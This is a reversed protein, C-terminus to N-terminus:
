FQGFRAQVGGVRDQAAGLRVTQLWGFASAGALALGLLVTPNMLLAWPM